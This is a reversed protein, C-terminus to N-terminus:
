YADTGKKTKMKVKERKNVIEEKRRSWGLTQCKERAVETKKKTESLKSIAPSLNQKRMIHIMKDIEILGM